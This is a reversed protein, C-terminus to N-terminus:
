SFACVDSFFIYLCLPELMCDLTRLGRDGRSGNGVCDSNKLHLIHSRCIYLAPRFGPPSVGCTGDHNTFDCIIVNLVFGSDDLELQCDVRWMVFQYSFCLLVSAYRIIGVYM